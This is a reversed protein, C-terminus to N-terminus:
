VWRTFSPQVLSRPPRGLRCAHRTLPLYRRHWHRRLHAVWSRLKGGAVLHRMPCRDGMKSSLDVHSADCYLPLAHNLSTSARPRLRRQAGHGGDHRASRRAEGARGVVGGGGGTGHAGDGGAGGAANYCATSAGTLCGQACQVYGSLRRAAQMSEGKKGRAASREARGERLCLSCDSCEYWM